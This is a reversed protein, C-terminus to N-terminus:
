SHFVPQNLPVAVFFDVSSNVRLTLSSSQWTFPTFWLIMETENVLPNKVHERYEFFCHYDFSFTVSQLHLSWSSTDNFEFLIFSQASYNAQLEEREDTTWIGRRLKCFFFSHIQFKVAKESLVFTIVSIVRKWETRKALFYSSHGSVFSLSPVSLM